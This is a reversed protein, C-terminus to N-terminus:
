GARGKRLAGRVAVPILVAAAIGLWWLLFTTMFVISGLAPDSSGTMRVGVGFGTVMAEVLTFVEYSVPMAYPLIALLMVVLPCTVGAALYVSWHSRRGIPTLMAYLGILLSVILLGAIRSATESLLPTVVTGALTVAVYAAALAVGFDKLWTRGAALGM